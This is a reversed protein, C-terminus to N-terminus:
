KEMPRVPETAPHLLHQAAEKMSGTEGVLRAPLKPFASFTSMILSCAYPIAQMMLMISWVLLDLTETGFTAVVVGSALTLALLFLTEERAAGLAKWLAQSSAQKPTRFFPKERVVFGTLVAVGITHTLALGAIAAALTQVATAEVRTRYLYILKGLKFVFLTLPLVSFILLPPDIKTPAVLMAVTWGLAALNFIVNVGDAIWPLWGAVFHYRQGLSLQGRGRFLTATHRRLIQIAGFAWRFRQKKFDVFTDPMLGRGYSKPIYDAEYGEEFVRLGLEADETICWEAWGGVQELEHKRVMTMTGHQIIANRENRTIMGIYFFGRYEAYMMAKFANEHADHYDQPAQVIATKEKMLQPTLERLWRPHVRYDSDIVAVVTAEPATKRLALNLAGAKFGALPDVHFFRFRSGLKECHAAVPEWVAPDKTNNDIVLVEFRPYDLHALADLTAIMMDPPENYAPVHVSVMPLQDDSMEIPRFLRRHEKLWLAEAWEHAEALLVVIVGIMGIILLVGVVLATVTMYQDIYDYIIWVAATAASYAILALFGRGRSRMLKSDIVLVAFTILAVVISIAALTPWNPINVIPESFPFKPERWANYVGWYAGVGSEVGRKWPQDFAEMLYYSYKEQKARALFQRLFKAENADSAVAGQRTRGNSPWGVEGILIPKGPFAQELDHVRQVVFDVASDLPVGEWYPLMHATIFDVHDALQPYKLWIHWPEATSVPIRTKERVDDLYAILEEVSVDGRLLAENGVMVRVVNTSRRAINLARKIERRTKKQDGDVWAGLTVNIKHKKAIEPIEGLSGEVTYTRVAHTRGALLELDEDIEDVSPYREDTPDQDARFPAFSFGQIIKPWAPETEPRNVAAWFMITLVAVAVAIIFSEKHM